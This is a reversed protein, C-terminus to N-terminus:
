AVDIYMTVLDEIIHSVYIDKEKAIKQLDDYVASSMHITVPRRAPGATEKAKVRLRQKVEELAETPKRGRRVAM